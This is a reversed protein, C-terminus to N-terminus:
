ASCQAQLGSSASWHVSGPLREHQGVSLPSSFRHTILLFVPAPPHARQLASRVVGPIFPAGEDHAPFQRLSHVREISQWPIVVLCCVLRTFVPILLFSWSLPSAGSQFSLGSRILCLGAPILIVSLALVVSVPLDVLFILRPVSPSLCVSLSCCRGARQDLVPGFCLV